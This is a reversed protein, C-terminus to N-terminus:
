CVNETSNAGADVAQSKGTYSLVADESYEDKNRREPM